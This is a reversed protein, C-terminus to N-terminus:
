EVRIQALPCDLYRRNAEEEAKVERYIEALEAAEKADLGRQAQKRVLQCELAVRKTLSRRPTTVPQPTTITNM